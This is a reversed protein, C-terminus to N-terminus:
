NNIRESNIREREEQRLECWIPSTRFTKSIMRKSKLCVRSENERTNKVTMCNKCSSCYPVSFDKNTGGQTVNSRLGRSKIFAYLANSNVVDDMKTEIIEAVKGVSLGSDLLAAIEKIYPDFKSRKSRRHNKM